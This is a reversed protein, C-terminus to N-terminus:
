ATVFQQRVAYGKLLYSKLISNAWIRFQTANKSNVRYGVSLIADLNYYQTQYKQIGSAGMHELISCTSNEILEGSKYINIMHKTIAPRKTGFLEAIQKQTLWVTGEEFRVELATQNDQTQYLIIEGQKM